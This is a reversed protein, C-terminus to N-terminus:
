YSVQKCFTAGNMQTQPFNQRKAVSAAVRSAQFSNIHYRKGEREGNRERDRKSCKGSRRGIRSDGGYVRAYSATLWSTHLVNEQSGLGIETRIM